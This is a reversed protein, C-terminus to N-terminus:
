GIVGDNLGALKPIRKRNYVKRSAVIRKRFKVTRLEKAIPNKKYRPLKMMTIYYWM